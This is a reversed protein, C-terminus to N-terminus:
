QTSKRTTNEGFSGSLARLFMGIYKQWAPADEDENKKFINAITAAFSVLVFSVFAAGAESNVLRALLEQLGDM